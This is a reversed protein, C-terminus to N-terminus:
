RNPDNFKLTDRLSLMQLRWLFLATAKSSLGPDGNVGYQCYSPRIPANEHAERPDGVYTKRGWAIIRTLAGNVGFFRRITEERILLPQVLREEVLDGLNSKFTSKPARKLLETLLDL